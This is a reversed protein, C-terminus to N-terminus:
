CDIKTSFDCDKFVEDVYKASYTTFASIAEEVTPCIRKFNPSLLRRRHKKGDDFHFVFEILGIGPSFRTALKGHVESLFISKSVDVHLTKEKSKSLWQEFDDTELATEAIVDQHDYDLHEFRSIAFDKDLYSLLNGAKPGASKDFLVAYIAQFALPQDIPTLRAANFLSSQIEEEEWVTDKLLRSAEKLFFKQSASLQRSSEPIVDQLVLREEESAFNQLWFKASRIRRDLSKTESDELARGEKKEIETHFEVHPLQLISTTLSFSPPIWPTHASTQSVDFLFKELDSAKGELVKGHLRDYDDFLRGMFMQDTRFDVTRNPKTRLMLYRLVEPSLFDGMERASSGVGKSSSMKAGGVMFFEYPINMPPNDAYLFRYVADSVDRSGGRTSHDSGAGEISVGLLKWKAAWEFKWPLKGNGDFPSITGEHGCGSAWKVLDPVCRYSVKGGDYRYVETTGVRGCTECVAQFPHWYEPRVAGSKRYNIERIKAANRLFLDIAENFQGSRYIDRLYYIEPTISLEKFIDFFESIYHMALDPHSSGPPPPTNCLPKGLHSQYFDEHGVPLEDLPDFDDVGYKYSVNLGCKSLFKHVCDHVLPGRLSGVHVRGSPTKSDNILHVAETDIKNKIGDLWNMFGEDSSVLCWQALGIKVFGPLKRSPCCDTRIEYHACDDLLIVTFCATNINYLSRKANVFKM